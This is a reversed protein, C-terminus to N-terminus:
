SQREIINVKSLRTYHTNCIISHSKDPQGGLRQEQVVNDIEYFRGNFAVLDGEQPYFNVHKLMKERFKFVSSQKRDPGFNADEATMDGTDSFCTMEIPSFYFRGVSQDTEGYINVSTEEPAVKYLEVVIQVMDGFLEANVSDVLLRDRASFYRGIFDAM